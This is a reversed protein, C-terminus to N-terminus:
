IEKIWDGVEKETTSAGFRQSGIVNLDYSKLASLSTDISSSGSTCFAIINKGDLAKTEIFSNIIKPITDWWIPYGLYITDYESINPINAIEPRASDDNQERNARCNMDQWNLDDETYPTKAEIKFLDGGTEEAIITAIRETINTCTFYVIATKSHENSQPTM